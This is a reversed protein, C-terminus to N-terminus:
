SGEEAPRCQQEEEKAVRRLTRAFGQGAGFESRDLSVLLRVGGEGTGVVLVKEGVELAVVQTRPGLQVRGLVRIGGGGMAGVRGPGLRRLLWYLGVVVALVAALAAITKVAALGLGVDAGLQGAWAVSPGGAMWM